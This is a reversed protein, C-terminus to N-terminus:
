TIGNIEDDSERAALARALSRNRPELLGPDSELIGFVEKRAETMIAMDRSIDAIKLELYGSQRIGSLDGPGRIRLDEEAISFGDREELMVKLRQKGAETLNEGYVLFFYSPFSSRGVRGRLQHLASLGFREAHEVVMCTANPIDVGVEVVSTAVLIDLRNRVFSNMIKEKKEEPLRSHILGVRYHPFINEGLYKAMSEANKLGSKSKEILPYVFFAQHGKAIERRVWRYVKEENGMQALHTEVPIRGPPLIRITSVDMDGFVTLALTRPIPTATMTILDPNNGKALIASRQLVGFRHQEDVIVLGLDKFDVDETFLAHTGIIMDVLGGKLSEMLPRRTAEPINGKLYALRVGLPELLRVANEAHQRALLETPVLLATQRGSAIYPLASLFAVLTKGSGVDGELLRYMPRPSRIDDNIEEIVKSQDQTLKFPLSSIMRKQLRFDTIPDKGPGQKKGLARKTVETQLFFLEEYILTDRAQRLKENNEPFHINKLAAKKSLFKKTELVPIPLEDELTDITTSLAERVYKRLQNQTLSSTLPYVPLIMGFKKPSDSFPEVEFATSQLEGYRYHFKGWLFFRRGPQLLKGLLNRGFCVLVAPTNNEDAEKVYVKLTRKGGKFPGTYDHAVVDVVTNAIENRPSLPIHKGRDEYERPYHTLLDCLTRIGLRNLASAAAPGVGRVARVETRLESLIM